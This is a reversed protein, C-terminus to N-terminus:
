TTLGAVKHAGFSNFNNSMGTGRRFGKNPSVSVKFSPNKIMKSVGYKYLM